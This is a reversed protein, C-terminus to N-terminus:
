CVIGVLNFVEQKIALDESDEMKIDVIQDETRQTVKDLGDVFEEEKVKMKLSYELPEKKVALYNAHPENQQM